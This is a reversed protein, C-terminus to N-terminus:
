FKYIKLTGSLTFTTNVSAGSDFFRSASCGVKLTSPGRMAFVGSAGGIAAENHGFISSSSYTGNRTTQTDFNKEGFSSSGFLYKIDISRFQYASISYGVKVRSTDIAFIGPGTVTLVGGTYSAWPVGTEVSSSGLDAFVYKNETMKVTKSGGLGVSVMAGGGISEWLPELMAKINGTSVPYDSM